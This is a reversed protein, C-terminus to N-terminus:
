SQYTGIAASVLEGIQNLFNTAMAPNFRDEQQGGLGIYGLVGGSVLPILAASNIDEFHDSFMCEIQQKSLRGCLPRNAEVASQIAQYREDDKHLYWQPKSECLEADDTILHVSAYDVQFEHRMADVVSSLLSELDDSWLLNVVLQLINRSLQENERALSVLEFLKSELRQNKDRLVHVQREILSIATGSEHSIELKSLINAHRNFFDPNQELFDAVAQEDLETNVIKNQSQQTM